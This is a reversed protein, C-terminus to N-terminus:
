QMMNTVTKKDIPEIYIQNNSLYAVLVAEKQDTKDKYVGDPSRAIVDGIGIQVPYM